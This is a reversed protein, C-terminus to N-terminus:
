KSYTITLIYSNRFVCARRDDSAVSHRGRTTHSRSEQEAPVQPLSAVRLVVWFHASLQQALCREASVDEIIAVDEQMGPAGDVRCRLSPVRARLVAKRAAARM